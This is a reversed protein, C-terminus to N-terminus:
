YTKNKFFFSNIIFTLNDKKNISSKTPNKEQVEVSFLVSLERSEVSV